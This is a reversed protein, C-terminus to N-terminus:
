LAPMISNPNSEEVALFGHLLPAVSVAAVAAPLHGRFQRHAAIELLDSCKQQRVNHTAAVSLEHPFGAGRRIQNVDKPIRSVLEAVRRKKAIARSLGLIIMIREQVPM